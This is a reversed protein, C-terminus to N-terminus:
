LEYDRETRQIKGVGRGPHHAEARFDQGVQFGREGIYFLMEDSVASPDRVGAAGGRKAM